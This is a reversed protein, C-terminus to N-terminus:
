YSRKKDFVLHPVKDLNWDIVLGEALSQTVKKGYLFECLYLASEFSKAGGASTIYKGDHVFLVNKRIDLDPFMKRMLETKQGPELPNKKPDNSRSPYVRMDGDGAVQRASDLLKKHGITPPNFRGFSFVAGKDKAETLFKNFTKM